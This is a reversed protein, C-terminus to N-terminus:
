AGTLLAHEGELREPGTRGDLGTDASDVPRGAADACRGDAIVLCTRGPPTTRSDALDIWGADTVIAVDGPTLS